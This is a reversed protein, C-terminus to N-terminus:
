AVESIIGYTVADASHPNYSKKDIKEKLSNEEFVTSELDEIVSRCQDSIILRKMRLMEGLRFARQLEIDTGRQRAKWASMKREAFPISNFEKIWQAGLGHPDVGMKLTIENDIGWSQRKKKIEKLVDRVSRNSKVYEDFVEYQKGAQGIFVVATPDEQGPDCGLFIRDYKRAYEVPDLPAKFTTYDEWVRGEGAVWLGLVLRQYQTSSYSEKMQAIVQRPYHPNVHTTTNIVLIRLQKEENSNDDKYTIIKQLHWENGDITRFTEKADKLFNKYVWSNKTDPNTELLVPYYGKQGHRRLRSIGIEYAKEPLTTAEVLWLFDANISRLAGNAEHDYQITKTLLESKGKQSMFQWYYEPAINSKTIIESPIEEEISKVITDKLTTKARGIAIGRRQSQECFRRVVQCNLATKGSGFGGSLLIIDFKKSLIYVMARKEIIYYV